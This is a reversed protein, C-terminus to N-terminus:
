QENNDESVYDSSLEHINLSNHSNHSNFIMGDKGDIPIRVRNSKKM